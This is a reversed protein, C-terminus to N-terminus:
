QHPLPGDSAEKTMQVDVREKHDWAGGLFYDPLHSWLLNMSSAILFWQGLNEKDPAGQLSLAGVTLAPVISLPILRNFRGKLTITTDRFGAKSLHLTPRSTRAITLKAPSRALLNGGKDYIQVNSPETSIIVEDYRGSVATTMAPACGSLYLSAMLIATRKFLIPLMM